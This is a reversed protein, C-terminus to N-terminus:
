KSGRSIRIDNRRPVKSISVRCKISFFSVPCGGSFRINSSSPWYLNVPNFCWGPNGKSLRWHSTWGLKTVYSTEFTEQGKKGYSHSKFVSVVTQDLYSTAVIPIVNAFLLPTYLKFVENWQDPPYWRAKLKWICCPHGDLLFLQIGRRQWGLIMM